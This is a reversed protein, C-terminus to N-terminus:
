RDDMHLRYGVGHVTEILQGPPPDNLKRRLAHIHVDVVNSANSFDYGWVREAIMTRTLVRGQNRLLYELIGFEKNTLLLKRGSQWVRRTAPDLGVDAARLVPDLAKPPRRALARIRALLEAFAFPKTLYDDAGADLGAVRDAVADRATLLLIPVKVGARRLRHCVELGDISPLMVDLVIADYSTVGSWDLADEGTGTLDVAHGAETLGKLLLEALRSEDEVVLIRV